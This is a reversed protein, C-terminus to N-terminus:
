PAEKVEEKSEEYFRKDLYIQRLFDKMRSLDRVDPIPNNRINHRALWTMAARENGISRLKDVEQANFNSM